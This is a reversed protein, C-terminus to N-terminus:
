SHEMSSEVETVPMTEHRRNPQQAQNAELDFIETDTPGTNLRNSETQAPQSESRESPNTEGFKNKVIISGHMRKSPSKGRVKLDKNTGEESAVIAKAPKAKSM